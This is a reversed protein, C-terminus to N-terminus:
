VAELVFGSITAGVNLGSREDLTNYYAPIITLASIDAGVNLAKKEDLTKHETNVWEINSVSAGVQLIAEDYVLEINNNVLEVFSIDAGVSLGSAENLEWHSAPIVSIEAVEAGVELLDGDGPPYPSTAAYCLTPSHNLSYAVTVRVADNKYYRGFSINQIRKPGVRVGEVVREVAWGESQVRYRIETSAEDVYFVLVDDDPDRFCKPGYAGAVLKEVIRTRVSEVISIRMIWVGKGQIDQSEFTLFPEGAKDFCIDPYSIFDHGPVVIEEEWDWSSLDAKARRVRTRGDVTQYAQWTREDLAMQEGYNVPGRCWGAPYIVKREFSWPM